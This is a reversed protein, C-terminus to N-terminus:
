AHSIRKMWASPKVWRYLGIFLIIGAADLLVDTISPYRGPVWIQILEALTGYLFTILACILIRRGESVGYFDLVGIWLVALFGFAPIHLLNQFNPSVWGLLRGSPGEDPIVSLGLLLLMYGVPVLIGIRNRMFTSERLTRWHGYLSM